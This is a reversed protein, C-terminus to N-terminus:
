KTRTFLNMMSDDNWIDRKNQSYRDSKGFYVNSELGRFIERHICNMEKSLLEVKVGLNM